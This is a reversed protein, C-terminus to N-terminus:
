DSALVTVGTFTWGSLMCADHLRELTVNDCLVFNDIDGLVRWRSDSNSVLIIPHWDINSLMCVIDTTLLTTNNAVFRNTRVSKTVSSEGYIVMELCVINGFSELIQYYRNTTTGTGTTNTIVASRAVTQRTMEVIDDQSVEDKWFDLIQPGGPDGFVNPCALGKMPTNESTDVSSNLTYIGPMNSGNPDTSVLEFKLYGGAASSQYLMAVSGYALNGVNFEPPLTMDTPIGSAGTFGCISTNHLQMLRSDDRVPIVAYDEPVPSLVQVGNEGYAALIDSCQRAVDTDTLLINFVTELDTIINPLTQGGTIGTRPKYIVRGGYKVDVNYQCFSQSDYVFWTARESDSDKFVHSDLAIFSDLISLNKPLCLTVAKAIIRNINYRFDALQDGYLAGTNLGLAQTVKTPITRNRLAYYNLVGYIREARAIDAFACVIAFLTVGLDTWEYTGIGRYKRHMDLWLMRTQMNLADNAERLIGPTRMYKILVGAGTDLVNSSSPNVWDPLKYPIGKIHNFPVNAANKLLSPYKNWFSIDNQPGRKGSDQKKAMLAALEDKEANTLKGKKLSEQLQKFRKFEKSDLKM